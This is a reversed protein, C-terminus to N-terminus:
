WKWMNAQHTHTIGPKVEHRRFQETSYLPLYKMLLPRPGVPCFPFLSSKCLKASASTSTSSLGHEKSM